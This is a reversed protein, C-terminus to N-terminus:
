PLSGSLCSDRRPGKLIEVDQNLLTLFRMLRESSGQDAKRRRGCLRPRRIREGFKARNKRSAERKTRGYRDSLGTLPRKGRAPGRV